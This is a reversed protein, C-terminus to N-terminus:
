ASRRPRRQRLGRVLRRAQKQSLSVGHRRATMMAVGMAVSDDGFQTAWTGAARLVERVSATRPLRPPRPGPPDLPGSEDLACRQRAERVSIEGAAYARAARSIADLGAGLERLALECGPRAALVRPRVRHWDLRARRVAAAALRDGDLAAVVAVVQRDVGTPLTM